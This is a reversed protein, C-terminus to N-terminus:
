HGFVTWRIDETLCSLIRHRDHHRFGALYANVTQKNPSTPPGEPQPTLLKV